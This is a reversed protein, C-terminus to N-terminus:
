MKLSFGFLYINQTFDVSTLNSNSMVRKVNINVELADIISRSLSLQVTHKADFRREGISPTVNKYNSYNFSYNLTTKLKLPGPLRLGASASHGLLDFRPDETDGLDLGYRVLIYAKSELFFFFQSLSWSHNTGDRTNSSIFNTKSFSYSAFTYFNPIPIFSIRPNINHTAVFDSRDLFSYSYSYSLDADWNEFSYSTSTNFSHAQYDFEPLKDWLSQSFDYGIELSAKKSSYLSAGVGVDYNLSMDQENSITDQEVISVNDDYQWNVGATIWWPKDNAAASGMQELLKKSHRATETEPDDELVMELALKADEKENMEMYAIAIQFLATQNLSPDLSMATQFNILSDEFKEMQQLTLGIFLYASANQPEEELVMEFEKIAETNSKNKFYAIGLQLRAGKYNPNLELVKKFTVIAENFKEAKNFTLGKFYHAELNTPDKELLLSFERLAPDFKGENYFQLGRILSPSNAEEAQVPHLWLFLSLFLFLFYKLVTVLGDLSSFFINDSEQSNEM